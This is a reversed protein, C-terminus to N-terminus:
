ATGGSPASGVSIWITEDIKCTEQCWQLYLSPSRRRTGTHVEKYGGDTIPGCRSTRIWWQSFYTTYRCYAMSRGGQGNHYRDKIYSESLVLLGCVCVERCQVMQEQRAQKWEDCGSMQYPGAIEILKSRCHFVIIRMDLLLSKEDQFYFSHLTSFYTRTIRGVKGQM